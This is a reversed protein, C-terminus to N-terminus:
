FFVYGFINVFYVYRLLTNSFHFEMNIIWKFFPFTEKWKHLKHLHM